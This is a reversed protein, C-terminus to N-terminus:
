QRPVLLLILCVGLLYDPGYVDVVRRAMDIWPVISVPPEPRPKPDAPPTPPPAALLFHAHALDFRVPDAM